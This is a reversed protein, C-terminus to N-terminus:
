QPWPRDGPRLLYMSLPALPNLSKFGRAAIKFINLILNNDALGLIAADEPILAFCANGLGAVIKIFGGLTAGINIAVGPIAIDGRAKLRAFVLFNKDAFLTKLARCLNCVERLGVLLVGM